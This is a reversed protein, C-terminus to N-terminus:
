VNYIQMGQQNHIEATVDSVRTSQHPWARMLCSLIVAIINQSNVCKGNM